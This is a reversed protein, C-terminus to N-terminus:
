CSGGGQIGEEKENELRRVCGRRVGLSRTKKKNVVSLLKIKM